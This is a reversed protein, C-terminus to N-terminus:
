ARSSYNSNIVSKGMISSYLLTSYRIYRFVPLVFDVGGGIVWFYGEEECFIKEMM